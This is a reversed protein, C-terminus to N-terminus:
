FNNPVNENNKNGTATQLRQNKQKLEELETTRSMLITKAKDYKKKMLTLEADTKKLREGLTQLEALRHNCIVKVDSYKASVDDFKRKLQEADGALREKESAVECKFKEFAAKVDCFENQKAAYARKYKECREHARQLDMEGSFTRGCSSYASDDTQVSVDVRPAKILTMTSRLKLTSYKDTLRDLHAKTTNLDTKTTTLTSKLRAVEENLADVGTDRKLTFYRAEKIIIEEKLKDIQKCFETCRCNESAPDTQTGIDLMCSDFGSIRRTDDHTSHRKIKRVQNSSRRLEQLENELSKQMSKLKHNENRLHDLELATKGTRLPSMSARGPKPSMTTQTDVLRNKPKEQLERKLTAIEENRSNISVRMASLESETEILQQQLSKLEVSDKELLQNLRKTNENFQQQLTNFQDRQIHSNQTISEIKAEFEKKERDFQLCEESLARCYFVNM